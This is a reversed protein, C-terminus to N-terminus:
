FHIDIMSAPQRVEYGSQGMCGSLFGQVIYQQLAAPVNPVGATTNACMTINADVAYLQQWDFGQPQYAAIILPGVGAETFLRIHSPIIVVPYAM